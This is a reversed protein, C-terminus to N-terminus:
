RLENLANSKLTNRVKRIKRHLTEVRILQMITKIGMKLAIVDLNTKRNVKTGKLISMKRGNEFFFPPLGQKSQM